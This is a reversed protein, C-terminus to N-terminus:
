LYYILTKIFQSFNCFFSFFLKNKSILLKYSPNFSFINLIPINSINRRFNFSIFTTPKFFSLIIKTKQKKSILDNKMKLILSFILLFQIILTVITLM